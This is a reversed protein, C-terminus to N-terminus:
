SPAGPLHNHDLSAYARLAVEGDLTLDGVRFAFLANLIPCGADLAIRTGM